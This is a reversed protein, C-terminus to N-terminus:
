PGLTIVNNAGRVGCDGLTSWPQMPAHLVLENMDVHEEAELRVRIMGVTTSERVGDLEHTDGWADNVYLKFEGGGRGQLMVCHDHEIQAMNLTSSGARLQVGRHTLRQEACPRGTHREIMVKLNDITDSPEMNLTITKSTDVSVVFVRLRLFQLVMAREYLTLRQKMGHIVRCDETTLRHSKDTIVKVFDM